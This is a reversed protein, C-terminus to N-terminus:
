KRLATIPDLRAAKKAPYVGFILGIAMSIVFAVIVALWSVSIPWGSIGQARVVVASLLSILIGLIVGITGGLGTIVLSEILFQNLIDKKSAGVSKRLGIEKTRETVSVLMINMIGVGGVILSIVALFGLLLNLIVSIDNIQNLIEEMTTIMFDDKDPDSINHNKRLLQAIEQKARPFYSTDEVTLVIESLYDIGLILKLTTKLPIYIFDNIDIGGMSMMDMSEFVGVIKYNNGKIRIKKGIPNEKGFLDKKLEHGLVAVKALSEEEQDHFFRGSELKAIQFVEPFDSSCGYILIQKEKDQYNIWEQGFAQGSVGTIYPFRNKDQLDKIDQRKLTTVKVGQVMSTLSGVESAGPVKVAIDLVNKGYSEVENMVLGRLSQGMSLIIVVATVGIVIGLISFISRLRNAKLALISQKIIETISM